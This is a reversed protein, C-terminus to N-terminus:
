ICVIKSIRLETMKTHAEMAVLPSLTQDVLCCQPLGEFCDTNNCWHFGCFFAVSDECVATVAAAVDGCDDAGDLAVFVSDKGFHIVTEVTGVVPELQLEV